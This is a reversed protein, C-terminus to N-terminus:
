KDSAEDIFDMKYVNTQKAQFGASQYLHNAAVRASKSTLMLTSKGQRSVYAIAYDILKRGFARGRFAQDVVVDEVWYKAGTPSMYTGLTLMGAVKGDDFLIFLHSSSSDLMARMAEETFTMPTSVLQELLRNVESVIKSDFATIEKIYTQEMIFCGKMESICGSIFPM